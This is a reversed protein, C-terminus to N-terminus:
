PFTATPSGALATLVADPSVGPWLELHARRAEPDLCVTSRLGQRNLHDQLNDALEWPVPVYLRGRESMVRFEPPTRSPSIM